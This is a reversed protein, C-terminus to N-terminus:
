LVLRVLNPLGKTTKQHYFTGSIGAVYKTKIDDEYTFNLMSYTHKAPMAKVDGEEWVFVVTYNFIFM